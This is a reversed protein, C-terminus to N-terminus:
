EVKRFVAIVKGIIEFPEEIIPYARNEPKLVFSDGTRKLRKVTTEGALNAVIIDNNVVEKTPKVVVMDGDHIRADNMSDGKVKLIFCGRWLSPDFTDLVEEFALEPIGATVRGIIPITRPKIRISRAQGSKREILGQETLIDLHVKVAKTSKFGISRTIERISPAYGHEDIFDQILQLIKERTTM